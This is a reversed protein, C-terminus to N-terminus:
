LVLAVRVIVLAAPCILQGTFKAASCQTERQAVSTLDWAENSNPNIATALQTREPHRMDDDRKTQGVRM